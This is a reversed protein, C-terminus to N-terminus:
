IRRAQLLDPREQGATRRDLKGPLPAFLHIGPDLLRQHSELVAAESLRALSQHPAVQRLHGTQATRLHRPEDGSVARRPPHFRRRILPSPESGAVRGAVDVQQGVDVFSM